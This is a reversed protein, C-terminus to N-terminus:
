RGAVAQEAVLRQYNATVQRVYNQTEAYPPVQNGYKRVAGEGANYAALTLSFDNFRGYLHRLLRAGGDVNAEANAISGGPVNLMRATGPMLQMLGRAGASSTANVRYRSEQTIVAHLLLPDIRHRAAVRGIVADYPTTYSTPQMGLIREADIPGALAALEVPEQKKPAIAAIRIPSPKDNDRDAVTMTGAATHHVTPAEPTITRNAPAEYDAPSAPAIVINACQSLTQIGTLSGAGAIRLTEGLPCPPPPPARDKAAAPQTVCAAGAILLLGADRPWRVLNAM